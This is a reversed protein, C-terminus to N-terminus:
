KEDAWIWVNTGMKRISFRSRAQDDQQEVEIQLSVFISDQWNDGEWNGQRYSNLGRLDLKLYVFDMIKFRVQCLEWEVKFNEM